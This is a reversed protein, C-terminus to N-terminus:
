SGLALYLEYLKGQSHSQRKQYSIYPAYNNNYMDNVKRDNFPYIYRDAIFIKKKNPSEKLKQIKSCRFGSDVYLFSNM